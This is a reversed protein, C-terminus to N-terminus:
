VCELPSFSEYGERKALFICFQRELLEQFSTAVRLAQGLEKRKMFNLKVGIWQTNGNVVLGFFKLCNQQCPIFCSIFLSVNFGNVCGLRDCIHWCCGNSSRSSYYESLVVGINSFCNRCDSCSGLIGHLVRFMLLTLKTCFCGYVRLFGFYLAIYEGFYSRIDDVPLNILKYVNWSLLRNRLKVLRPRDHLPLYDCLAHNNKRM